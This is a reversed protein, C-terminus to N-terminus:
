RVLQYSSDFIRRDFLEMSFQGYRFIDMVYLSDFLDICNNFRRGSGDAYHTLKESETHRSTKTEPELSLIDRSWSLHNYLNIHIFTHLFSIEGNRKKIKRIITSKDGLQRKSLHKRKLIM